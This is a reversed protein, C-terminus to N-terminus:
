KWWTQIVEELSTKIGEFDDMLAPILKKWIIM